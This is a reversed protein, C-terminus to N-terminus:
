PALYIKLFYKPFVTPLKFQM